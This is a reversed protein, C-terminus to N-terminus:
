QAESGQSVVEEPRIAGMDPHLNLVHRECDYKRVFAKVCFDCKYPRLNGHTRKHANLNHARTFDKSCIDCVHKAPTKKIKPFLVAPDPHMVALHKKLEKETAFGLHKRTCSTETCLFPKEHRAVHSDRSNSNPFGEHFNFCAHRPCRHWNLGYYQQLSSIVSPDPIAAAQINELTVRARSVSTGLSGLAAITEERARYNRTYSILLLLNEFYDASKLHQCLNKLDDPIDKESAEASGYADYFDAISPGLGNEEVADSQLHPISAELHDVWHLVAYDQFAFYGDTVYDRISDDSLNADFCDFLLYQLCLNALKQEERHVQVYENHILYSKATGHVLQVRDGPLVEVLSGCIDRVHACLRRNEFDVTQDVTDM